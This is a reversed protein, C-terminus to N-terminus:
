GEKIQNLADLFAGYDSENIEGIKKANFTGFITMIDNRHGSDILTKMVKQIDAKSVASKEKVEEKPEPKSGLEEKKEVHPNVVEVALESSEVNLINLSEQLEEKTNATITIQITM